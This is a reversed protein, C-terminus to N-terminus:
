KIEKLGTNGHQVAFKQTATFVVDFPNDFGTKVIFSDDAPNLIVVTNDGLCPVYILGDVSNYRINHPNANPRGTDITSATVGLVQAKVIFRTGCAFYAFGGPKRTIGYPYKGNQHGTTGLFSLDTGSIVDVSNAGNGGQFLNTGDFFINGWSVHSSSAAEHTVSPGTLDVRVFDNRYGNGFDRLIYAIGSACIIQKPGQFWFNDSTAGDMPANRWNYLTVALTDPNIKALFKHADMFENEDSTNRSYTAWLSDTTSDFAIYSDTSIGPEVFKIFKEQEGTSPNVQSLYGDRVGFIKDRGSVWVASNLPGVPNAGSTNGSDPCSVNLMAKLVTTTPADRLSEAFQIQSTFGFRAYMSSLVDTARQDIPKEYNQSFYRIVFNIKDREPQTLPTCSM